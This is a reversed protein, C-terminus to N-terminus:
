LKPWLLLDLALRLVFLGLEIWVPALVLWWPWDIYGGVELGILVVTVAAAGAARYRNMARGSQVGRRLLRPRRVHATRDRVPDAVWNFSSFCTGAPEFSGVV